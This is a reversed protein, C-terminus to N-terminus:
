AQRNATITCSPTTYMYTCKCGYDTKCVWSREEMLLASISLEHYAYAHSHIGHGFHANESHNSHLIYRSAYYSEKSTCLKMDCQEPKMYDSVTSVGASGHVGVYIDMCQETRYIAPISVSLCASRFTTECLGSWKEGGNMTRGDKNETKGSQM